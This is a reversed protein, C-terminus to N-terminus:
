IKNSLGHFIRLLIKFTSLVAESLYLGLVYGVVTLLSQFEEDYLIMVLYWFAVKPDYDQNLTM